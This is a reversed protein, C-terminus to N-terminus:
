LGGELLRRRSKVETRTWIWLHDEDLGSLLWSTIRDVQRRTLPM